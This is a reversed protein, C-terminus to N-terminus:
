KSRASANEVENIHFVKGRGSRKSMYMMEDAFKIIEFASKADTPYEAIGISVSLRYIEGGEIKFETNKIKKLVRSAIDYVVKIDVHPMIVVFEDGGYRYVHDTGRLIYVLVTGIDQLLQSGVLHGHSDNVDKFHDVDLFMISFKDHKQEHLKVASELDESLKRQNYLGTVADTKALTELNFEKEKGKRYIMVSEVFHYFLTNLMYKKHSKETDLVIWVTHEKGEFVPTYLYFKRQNEVVYEEGVYKRPLRKGKLEELVQKTVKHGLVEVDKGSVEVLSFECKFDFSGFYSSVRNFFDINSKIKLPGSFLRVLQSIPWKDSSGSAMVSIKLLCSELSEPDLYKEFVSNIQYRYALLLSEYDKEKLIINVPIRGFLKFLTELNDNDLTEDVYIFVASFSDVELDFLDSMSKCVKIKTGKHKKLGVKLQEADSHKLRYCLIEKM